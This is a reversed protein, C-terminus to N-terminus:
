WDRWQETFDYRPVQIGTNKVAIFMLACLLEREDNDILLYGSLENLNNLSLIFTKVTGMVLEETPNQIKQLESIFAVILKDVNDVDSTTYSYQENFDSFEDFDLYDLMCDLLEEKIISIKDELTGPSIYARIRTADQQLSINLFDSQFQYHSCLDLLYAFHKLNDQYVIKILAKEFTFPNKIYTFWHQLLDFNNPAIYVFLDDIVNDIYHNDVLYLLVPLTKSTTLKEFFFSDILKLNLNYKEHTLMHKVNELDGLLSVEQFVRNNLSVEDWIIERNNIMNIFDEPEANIINHKFELISPM